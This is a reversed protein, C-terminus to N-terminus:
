YLCVFLLSDVTQFLVIKCLAFTLSATETTIAKSEGFEDKDPNNVFVKEGKKLIINKVSGYDYIEWRQGIVRSM